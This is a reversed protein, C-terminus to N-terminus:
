SEAKMPVVRASGDNTESNLSEAGLCIEADSSARFFAFM